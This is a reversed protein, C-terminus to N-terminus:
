ADSAKGEESALDCNGKDDDDSLDPEQKRKGKDRKNQFKLRKDQLKKTFSVMQLNRAKVRHPRPLRIRALDPKEADRAKSNTQSDAKADESDM